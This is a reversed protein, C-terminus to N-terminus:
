SPRTDRVISRSVHEKQPSQAARQGTLAMSKLCDDRRAVTLAPAMRIATPQRGAGARNMEYRPYPRGATTVCVSSESIIISQSASAAKPLDGARSTTMIWHAPERSLRYRRYQERRQQMIASFCAM